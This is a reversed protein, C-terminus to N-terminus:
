NEVLPVRAVATLKKVQRLLYVALKKEAESMKPKGLRRIVVDLTTNIPDIQAWYNLFLKKLPSPTGRSAIVRDLIEFVKFRCKIAFLSEKESDSELNGFRHLENVIKEFIRSNYAEVDDFEEYTVANPEASDMKEIPLQFFTADVCEQERIREKVRQIFVISFEAIHKDVLEVFEVESRWKRLLGYSVGLKKATEENSGTNLLACLTALYKSVSFGIREGKATGRRTPAVYERAKENLFGTLLTQREEEGILRFLKLDNCAVM